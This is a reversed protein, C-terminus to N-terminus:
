KVKIEIGSLTFGLSFPHDPKSCDDEYRVHIDKIQLEINRMIQMQLRETFTDQEEGTKEGGALLNLYFRNFNLIKENKFKFQFLCNAKEAERAKELEMLRRVENIKAEHAQFEEKLADYKISSKPSVLIVLGEVTAKVSQTYLSKWPISLKLKEITEFKKFFM